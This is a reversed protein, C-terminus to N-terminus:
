KRKYKMRRKRKTEPPEAVVEIEETDDEAVIVPAPTVALPVLDALRVAVPEVEDDVCGHRLFWECAEDTLSDRSVSRGAKIVTRGVGLDIDKTNNM